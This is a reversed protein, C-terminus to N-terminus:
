EHIIGLDKIKKYLTSKSIKLKQAVMDVDIEHQLAHEIFQKEQSNTFAELSMGFSNSIVSNSTDVQYHLLKKVDVDRIIPLPSTLALQECVRKLERVNGVWNYKKLEELALPDFSKNRKSKDAEIFATAITAIDDKRQRLPVLVLSHANLRFYLDERFKKQQILEKLLVNSAAIIRVDVHQSEKSGVKRIEGSELFRLLKAQQSIPLAEIEQWDIFRDIVSFADIVPKTYGRGLYILEADIYHDRLWVCMPLTLMVDGISDTRSIIIRKINM